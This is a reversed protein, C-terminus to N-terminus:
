NPKRLKKGFFEVAMLVATSAAAVVAFTRINSRGRPSRGYLWRGVSRTIFERRKMDAGLILNDCNLQLIPM